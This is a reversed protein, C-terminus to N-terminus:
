WYWLCKAIYSYLTFTPLWSTTCSLIVIKLTIHDLSVWSLVVCIESLRCIAQITVWGKSHHNGALYSGTCGILAMYSASPWRFIQSFKFIQSWFCAETFASCHVKPLPASKTLENIFSTTLLSFQAKGNHMHTTPKALDPWM